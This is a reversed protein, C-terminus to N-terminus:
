DTLAAPKQGAPRHEWRGPLHVVGEAPITANVHFPYYLNHYDYFESQDPSHIAVSLIYDGALLPLAPMNYLVEGTGEIYPIDFQMLDTNSGTIHLGDQRYIAIGFVPHEIRQYARYRIAITAPGDTAWRNGGDRGDQDLFRVGLIDAKRTGWRRRRV